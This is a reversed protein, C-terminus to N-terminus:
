AAGTEISNHQISAHCRNLALSADFVEHVIGIHLDEKHAQLSTTDSEVKSLGRSDEDDIRLNLGSVVEWYKALMNDTPPVRCSLPLRSISAMTDALSTRTDDGTEADFVRDFRTHHKELLLLGVHNTSSDVAVFNGHVFQSRLVQLEQKTAGLSM